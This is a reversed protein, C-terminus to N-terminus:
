ADLEDGYKKYFWDEFPGYQKIIEHNKKVFPLMNQYILEWDNWRCHNKVFTVLQEPTQFQLIGHKNFYEDIRGAGLYIPITMNAFCNFIKETMWYDDIYNEIAISFRYPAYIEKTSVFEGGDFTGLTHVFGFEKLDKAMQKRIKHLECYEKDSSVISVNKAKEGDSFYMYNANGFGWIILRANDCIKLLKSDHTYVYKFKQYNQEMYNYTDAQLSRPEILLAISGPEVEGKVYTDNYCNIYPEGDVPHHNPFHDYMSHLKIRM